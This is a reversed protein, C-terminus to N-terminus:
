WFGLNIRRSMRAEFAQGFSFPTGASYTYLLQLGTRRRVALDTTLRFARLVQGDGGALGLETEGAVAVDDVLDIRGSVRSSFGPTTASAPGAALAARLDLRSGAHRPALAPLDVEVRSSEVEAGPVMPDTERKQLYRLSVGRLGGQRWELRTTESEWSAMMQREHAAALQQGHPLGEYTVGLSGATTDPSDPGTAPRSWSTLASLTLGPLPRVHGRAVELDRSRVLAMKDNTQPSAAGRVVSTEVGAHSWKGVLRASALPAWGVDETRAAGVDTVFAVSSLLETRVATSISTQADPSGVPAIFQPAVSVRTSPALTVGLAMLSPSGPASTGTRANIGTQGFSLSVPTPGATTLSLGRVPSALSSGALSSGRFMAPLPQDGLRSRVALGGLTMEPFAMVLNQVRPGNDDSTLTLAPLMAGGNTAPAAAALSFLPLASGSGTSPVRFSVKAEQAAVLAPSILLFLASAAAGIYSRLDFHGSRLHPPGLRMRIMTRVRPM